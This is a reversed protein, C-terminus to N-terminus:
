NKHAQEDMWQDLSSKSYHKTGEIMITPFGINAKEWKIITGPSVGLFKAAQRQNMYEPWHNAQKTDQVAAAIADSIMQRTAQELEPPLKIGIDM